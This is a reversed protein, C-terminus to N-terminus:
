PALDDALVRALGFRHPRESQLGPHDVEITIKGEDSFEVFQKADIGELRFRVFQISSILDSAMQRLDFRAPERWDDRKIWIHSELGLLERLAVDRQQVDPFELLM